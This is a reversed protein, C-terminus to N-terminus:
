PSVSWIRKHKQIHRKHIHLTTLIRDRNRKTMRTVRARTLIDLIDDRVDLDMAKAWSLEGRHMKPNRHEETYLAYLANVPSTEGTFSLVNDLFQTTYGRANRTLAAIRTSIHSSEEQLYGHTYQRYSEKQDQSIHRNNINIFADDQYLDRWNDKTLITFVDRVAGPSIVHDGEFRLSDLIVRRSIEDLTYNDAFDQHFQSHRDIDVLSLNIAKGSGGRSRPVNHHNNYRRM